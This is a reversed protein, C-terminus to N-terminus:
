HTQSGISNLDHVGDCTPLSGNKRTARSSWWNRIGLVDGFYSNYGSHNRDPLVCARDTFDTDQRDSRTGDIYQEDSKRVLVM